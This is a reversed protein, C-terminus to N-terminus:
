RPSVEEVSLGVITQSPRVGSYVHRESCGIPLALGCATTWPYPAQLFLIFYPSVTSHVDPHFPRRLLRLKGGSEAGNADVRSRLCSDLEAVHLGNQIRM